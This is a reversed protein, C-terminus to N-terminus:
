KPDMGKIRKTFIRFVIREGKGGWVQDNVISLADRSNKDTSRFNRPHSEGSSRIFRGDDNDALRDLLSNRDVWPDNNIIAYRAVLDEREFAEAPASIYTYAYISKRTAENTVNTREDRWAGSRTHHFCESPM